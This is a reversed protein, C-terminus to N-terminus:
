RLSDTRRCRQTCWAAGNPSGQTYRYPLGPVPVTSYRYRTGTGYARPPARPAPPPLTPNAPPPRKQTPRPSRDVGPKHSNKRSNLRDRNEHPYMYTDNPKPPHNHPEDTHDTHGRAGPHGTHGTHTGAGGPTKKGRNGYQVTNKYRYGTFLCRPALRAVCPVRASTYRYRNQACIPFDTTFYLNQVTCTSYQTYQYRTLFKLPPLRSVVAIAVIRLNHNKSKSGCVTVCPIRNRAHGVDHAPHSPKAHYVFLKCIPGEQGRSAKRKVQIAWLNSPQTTHTHTHTM